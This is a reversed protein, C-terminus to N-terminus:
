FLGIENVFFPPATSPTANQILFGSVTTDAAGIASLPIEIRSWSNTPATFQFSRENIAEGTADFAIVSLSQGGQPGGNIWFSFNSYSATSFPAHHLYLAEWADANIQIPREDDSARVGLTVEAWSWSEWGPALQNGYIALPATTQAFAPTSLALMALLTGIMRVNM